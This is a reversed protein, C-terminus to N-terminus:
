DTTAPAETEPATEPSAQPQEAEPLQLSEDLVEISAAGRLEAMREQLIQRVMSAKVQDKVQDFSPPQRDRRDELKIVHWGFQTQVPKSIAGVELEFAATAFPEVMQGRVFYGLDGGNPGSPGTSETRALEVFDAGGELKEIVEAAKEETEVLIHRARVEVEAQLNGIQEDYVAKATEDTINSRIAQEFFVDRLARLEYYETLNRYLDSDNYGADRAAQALLQLEVVYQLVLQRRAAEPLRAIDQGLEDEALELQAATIDVGNVRAVPDTSAEASAEQASAGGFGLGGLGLMVGLLAAGAVRIFQHDFVPFRSSTSPALLVDSAAFVFPV